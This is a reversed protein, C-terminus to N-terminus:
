LYQSYMNQSRVPLTNVTTIHSHCVTDRYETSTTPLNQRNSVSVCSVGTSCVSTSASINNEVRRHNPVHFMWSKLNLIKGNFRCYNATHIKHAGYVILTRVSFVNLKNISLKDTWSAGTYPNIKNYSLKKKKKNIKLHLQHDRNQQNKKRTHNQSLTEM